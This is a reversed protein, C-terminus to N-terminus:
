CMYIIQELTIDSMGRRARAFLLSLRCNINRQERPVRTHLRVRHSVRAVAPRTCQPGWSHSARPQRTIQFSVSSQTGFTEEFANLPGSLAPLKWTSTPGYRHHVLRMPRTEFSQGPLPFHVELETVVLHQAVPGANRILVM